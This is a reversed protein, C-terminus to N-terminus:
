ICRPADCAVFTPLEIRVVPVVLKATAVQADIQGGAASILELNQKFRKIATPHLDVSMVLADASELERQLRAKESRPVQLRSAM